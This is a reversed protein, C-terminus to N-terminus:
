SIEMCVQDYAADLNKLSNRGCEFLKFYRPVNIVSNDTVLPEEDKTENNADKVESTNVSIHVSKLEIEDLSCANVIVM